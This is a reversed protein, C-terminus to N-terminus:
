IFLSDSTIRAVVAGWWERRGRWVDVVLEEVKVLERAVQRLGRTRRSSSPRRFPALFLSDADSYYTSPSTQDQKM